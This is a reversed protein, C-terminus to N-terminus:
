VCMFGIPENEADLASRYMKLVRSFRHVTAPDEPLLDLVKQNAEMTRRLSDVTLGRKVRRLTIREVADAIRDLIRCFQEKDLKKDFFQELSKEVEERILTRIINPDPENM